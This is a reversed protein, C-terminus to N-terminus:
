VVLVFVCLDRSTALASCYLGHIFGVSRTSLLFLLPSIGCYLTYCWGPWRSRRADDVDKSTTNPKMVILETNRQRAPCLMASQPLPFLLRRSCGVCMFASGHRSLCLAVLIRLFSFLFRFLFGKSNAHLSRCITGWFVGPTFNSLISFSLHESFHGSSRPFFVIYM